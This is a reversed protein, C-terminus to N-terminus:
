KFVISGLPVQVLVFLTDGVEKEYVITSYLIQAEFKPTISKRNSNNWRKLLAAWYEGNLKAANKRSSMGAEVPFLPNALGKGVTQFCGSITDFAINFLEEFSKKDATRANQQLTEIVTLLSDFRKGEISDPPETQKSFTKSIKSWERPMDNRCSLFLLTCAVLIVLKRPKMMRCGQTTATCHSMIYNKIDGSLVTLHHHPLVINVRYLTYEKKLFYLLIEFFYYVFCIFHFRDGIM